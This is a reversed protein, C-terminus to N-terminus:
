IRTGYRNENLHRFKSLQMLKTFSQQKLVYMYLTNQTHYDISRKIM